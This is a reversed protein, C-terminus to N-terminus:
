MPRKNDLTGTYRVRDGYSRDIKRKEWGGARERLDISGFQKKVVLIDPPLWCLM